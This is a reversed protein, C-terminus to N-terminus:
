ESKKNLFLKYVVYAVVIGVIAYGIYNSKSKNVIIDSDPTTGGGIYNKNQKTTPSPESKSNINQISNTKM